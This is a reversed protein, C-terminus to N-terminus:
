GGAVSPLVLVEAGAQVRTALGEAQRVDDGDVYVNVHRRLAGQEDRLRRALAPQDVDLRDLVDALTAPEAALAVDVRRQGGVLDALAGPLSLRVVATV